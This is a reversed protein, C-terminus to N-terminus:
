LDPRCIGVVAIELQSCDFTLGFNWFVAVTTFDLLCNWMGVKFAGNVVSFVVRWSFVGTQKPSPLLHMQVTSCDCLPLNSDELVAGAVIMRVFKATLTTRKKSHVASHVASDVTAISISHRSRLLSDLNYGCICAFVCFERVRVCYSTVLV